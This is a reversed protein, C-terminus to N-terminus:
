ETERKEYATKGMLKEIRLAWTITPKQWIPKYHFM